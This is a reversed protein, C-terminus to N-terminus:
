RSFILVFLQESLPRALAAQVDIEVLSVSGVLIRTQLTRVLIANNKDRLTLLNGYMVHQPISMATHHFRLDGLIDFCAFKHSGTAQIHRRRRVLFAVLSVCISALEEISRDADEASYKTLWTAQHYQPTSGMEKYKTIKTRTREGSEPPGVNTHFALNM